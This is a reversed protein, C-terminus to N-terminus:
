SILLLHSKMRMLQILFCFSGGTSEVVLTGTCPAVPLRSSLSKGISSFYKNLYEAVIRGDSVLANDILKSNSIESKTQKNFALRNFISWMERPCTTRNILSSFYDRKHDVISRSLESKLALFTARFVQNQPFRRSLKYFKDRRNKLLKLPNVFWPKRFSVSLVNVVKIHSNDAIIDGVGGHFSSFDLEDSELLASIGKEVMDENVYVHSKFIPDPKAPQNIQCVIRRHDSLCNGFLGLSFEHSFCDTLVHDIITGNSNSPRTFMNRSKQNLYLFNNSLLRDLYLNVEFDNELLINLNMASLFITNPYTSLVGDLFRLYNHINTHPPKYIGGINIKLEPLHVVIAQNEDECAPPYDLTRYKKSIYISIGGGHRERIGHFENFGDIHLANIPDKFFTEVLVMADLEFNLDNLFYLFSQRRENSILRNVNMYLIKFGKAFDGTRNINNLSHNVNKIYFESYADM